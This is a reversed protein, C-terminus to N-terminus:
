ELTEFQLGTYQYFEFAASTAPTFKQTQLIEDTFTNLRTTTLTQLAQNSSALQCGLPSLPTVDVQDLWSYHVLECGAGRTSVRTNRTQIDAVGDVIIRGQILTLQTETQAEPQRYQTLKVQTDHDFYVITGDCLRYKAYGDTGTQLIAGREFTKAPDTMDTAACVPVPGLGGLWKTDFTQSVLLVTVLTVFAAALGYTLFTKM